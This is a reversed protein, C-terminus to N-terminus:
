WGRGDDYHGDSRSGHPEGLQRRREEDAEALQYIDRQVEEVRPVDRLVLQGREGASEVTLTGCRLLRDVVGSHEFSVDNIRSIPMDRGSRAVIGHRTIVRRDTVVFLTTYWRLFPLISMWLLLVATLAAVALRAPTQSDGSPVIAAVYVAGPLLVLLALAPGVLEKGHPRLETVIEEDDGLLKRPFGMARM